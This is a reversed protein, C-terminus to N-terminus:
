MPIGVRLTLEVKTAGLREMKRKYYFKKGGKVRYADADGVKFLILPEVYDSVRVYWGDSYLLIDKNYRIQLTFLKAM